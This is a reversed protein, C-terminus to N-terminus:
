SQKLRTELPWRPAPDAVEPPGCSVSARAAAAAYLHIHHDHLGPLVAGGAADLLPEGRLPALRGAMAEIRGGGCRIDVCGGGGISARRILM